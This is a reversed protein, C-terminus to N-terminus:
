MKPGFSPGSRLRGALSEPSEADAATPVEFTVLELVIAVGYGPNGVIGINGAVAVVM